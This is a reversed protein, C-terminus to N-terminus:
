FLPQPAPSEEQSPQTPAEQQPTANQEDPYRQGDDGQISLSSKLDPKAEAGKLSGKLTLKLSGNGKLPVPEWGWNQLINVSVGRGSLSLDLPRDSSQGITAQGELLGTATFASTDSFTIANADASVVTSPHRLDTKNLTAASANVTLNGKWLGFQRDKVLHLDSGSSDVSTFQFPFDPNIDIIISRNVAFKNVYLERLWDPMPELLASKWSQPLTYLLSTLAVDDLRLTHDKRSWAGTARVLGDQWRSSFQKIKLTDGELELNLVPNVLHQDGLVIDYANFLASGADAQWLGGERRLDKLSLSFDSLAWGDGQINTNILDARNLTLSVGDVYNDIQTLLAPLAQHSQYKVDSLRFYDITWRGDPARKASGTLLGGALDAGVNTLLLQNDRVDGQILVNATELENLWLKSASFEFHANDTPILGSTLRWPLFGGNVGEGKLAIEPTKVDVSVNRLQLRQSRVDPAGTKDASLTLTGGDVELSAFSLPTQWFDDGLDVTLKQAKVLPEREKVGFEAQNLTLRFPSSLSYDLNSFALRYPSNNSIWQSIWGAAYGTQAIFYLAAVGLVIVILLTYFAKRILAMAPNLGRYSIIPM